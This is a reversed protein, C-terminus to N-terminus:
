QSIYYRSILSRGAPSTIYYQYELAEMVSLTLSRVAASAFPISTYAAEGSCVLEYVVALGLKMTGPCSRIKRM